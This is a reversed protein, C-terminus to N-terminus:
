GRTTGDDMLSLRRLVYQGYLRHLYPPRAHSRSRAIVPGRAARMTANAFPPSTPDAAAPTM